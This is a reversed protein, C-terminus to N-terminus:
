SYHVAVLRVITLLDKSLDDFYNLSLEGALHHIAPPKALIMEFYSKINALM